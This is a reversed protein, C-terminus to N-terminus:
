LIDNHIKINELDVDSNKPEVVYFSGNKIYTNESIIERVKRLEKLVYKLAQLTEEGATGDQYNVICNEVQADISSDIYVSKLEGKMPIEVKQIPPFMIKVIAELEPLAYIKNPRLWNFM